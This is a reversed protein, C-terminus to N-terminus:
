TEQGVVAPMLELDIAGIRDCRLPRDAPVQVDGGARRAQAASVITRVLQITRASIVPAATHRYRRARDAAQRPRMLQADVDIVFRLPGVVLEVEVKGYEVHEVLLGRHEVVIEESRGGARVFIVTAHLVCQWGATDPELDRVVESHEGWESEGAPRSGPKKKRCWRERPM